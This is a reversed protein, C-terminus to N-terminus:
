GNREALLKDLKKDYLHLRHRIGFLSPATKGKGIDGVYSLIVQIMLITERETM